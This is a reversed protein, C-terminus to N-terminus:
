LIGIRLDQSGGVLCTLIGRFWLIKLGRLCQCNPLYMLEERYQLGVTVAETLGKVTCPRWNCDKCHTINVETPHQSPTKLFLFNLVHIHTCHIEFQSRHIGEQHDVSYLHNLFIYHTIPHNPSSTTQSSSRQWVILNASCFLQLLVILTYLAILTLFNFTSGERKLSRSYKM